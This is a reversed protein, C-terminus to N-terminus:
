KVVVFPPDSLPWISIVGRAAPYLWFFTATLYQSRTGNDRSRGLWYSFLHYHYLSIYCNIIKGGKSVALLYHSPPLQALTIGMFLYFM